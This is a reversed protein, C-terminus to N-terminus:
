KRNLRKAKTAFFGSVGLAATGLGGLALVLPQVQTGSSPATAEPTPSEELPTVRVSPLDTTLPAIGVEGTPVAESVVSVPMAPESHTGLAAFGAGTFLALGLASSAVTRQQAKRRRARSIIRDPTSPSVAASSGAMARLQGVFAHDADALRAVSSDM